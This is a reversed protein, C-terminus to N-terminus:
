SAGHGPSKGACAGAHPHRSHSGGNRCRQWLMGPGNSAEGPAERPHNHFGRVGGPGRPIQPFHPPPLLALSMATRGM